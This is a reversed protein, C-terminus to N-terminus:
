AYCHNFRRRPFTVGEKVEAGKCIGLGSSTGILSAGADIMKLATDKDRVGGSAKVGVGNGVTLRMMEVDHANAGSTSFGTSTKVCTAGALVCMISADVIEAKDLLCTEFIVKVVKKDFGFRLSDQVLGQIQDKVYAYDGDKMRGVDIVMDIEHCGLEWMQISEQRKSFTTAAGLPFGVVAAVSVTTGDLQQLAQQVRGGNVCVSGFAYQKAESCLVKVQAATSEAKLITHDIFVAAGREELIQQSVKKHKPLVQEFTELDKLHPFHQTLFAPKDGPTLGLRSAVVEYLAL